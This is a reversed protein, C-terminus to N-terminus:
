VLFGLGLWCSQETALWGSLWWAGVLGGGQGDVVTPGQRGSGTGSQVSSHATRLAAAGPRQGATLLAAGVGSDLWRGVTLSEVGAAGVVQLRCGVGEPPWAAVWSGGVAWWQISKSIHLISPIFYLGLIKM